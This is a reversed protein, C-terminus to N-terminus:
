TDKLMSKLMGAAYCSAEEKGTHVEEVPKETPEQETYIELNDKLTLLQLIHWTWSLSLFLLLVLRDLYASVSKDM